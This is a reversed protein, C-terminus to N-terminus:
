INRKIIEIISEISKEMSYNNLMKKKANEGLKQRLTKNQYLEHIKDAMTDVDLYPVVFGADDQVFGPMGGSGEFCIIPKALAANEMCVLPFPDERSVSIFIDFLTYYDFPNSKEGVFRVKNTLLLKQLDYEIQKKDHESVYGVWTFLCTSNTYTNFFKNALHIFIDTGKRWQGFGAAGVVFTNPLLGLENIIGRGNTIQHMQYQNSFPSVIHIIKPDVNYNVVINQKVVDSVAIIQNFIHLKSAFFAHGIMSDITYELEHVHLIFPINQLHKKLITAINISIVTNAYVLSYNKQHLSKQYKNIHYYKSRDGILKNFIRKLLSNKKQPNWIFVSALKNFEQELDGGEILLVDFEFISDQIIRKLLSLLVLPAGTRSADHSIFLIKPKTNM